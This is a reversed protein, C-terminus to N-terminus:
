YEEDCQQRKFEGVQHIWDYYVLCLLEDQGKM